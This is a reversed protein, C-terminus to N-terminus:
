HYNTHLICILNPSTPSAVFVIDQMNDRSSARKFPFYSQVELFNCLEFNLALYDTCGFFHELLLHHPAHFAEVRKGKGGVLSLSPTNLGRERERLHLGQQSDLSSNLNDWWHMKWWLSPIVERGQHSIFWHWSKPMRTIKGQLKSLM